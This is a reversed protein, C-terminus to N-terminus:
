FMGFQVAPSPSSGVVDKEEIPQGDNSTVGVQTRYKVELTEQLTVEEARFLSNRHAQVPLPLCARDTVPRTIKSDFERSGAL